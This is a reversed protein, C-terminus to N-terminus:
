FMRIVGIRLSLYRLNADQDMGALRVERNLSNFKIGPSLIWNSGIPYTLGGAVQFGLGHGSDAVIDGNSNEIEIHNALMGARAYFSLQSESIPMSYQLGLIYGTEEFCVDSLGFAKDSAFRNWGWGGYIGFRSSVAFHVNGEFGFGPKMTAGAVNGTAFSVGPSLEFGFRKHGDQANGYLSWCVLLMAFLFHKSKM